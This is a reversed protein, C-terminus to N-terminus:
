KKLISFLEKKAEEVVSIKSFFDEIADFNAYTKKPNYIYKDPNNMLDALMEALAKGKPTIPGEMLGTGLKEAYSLAKTEREKYTKSFMSNIIKTGHKLNSYGLYDYILSMLKERNDEDFSPEKKVWEDAEKGKISLEPFLEHFYKLDIQEKM